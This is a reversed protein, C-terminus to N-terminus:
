FLLQKVMQILFGILGIALIGLGATKLVTKYEEKEPKRTVRLAIKCEYIFRKLKAKMGQQGHEITTQEM